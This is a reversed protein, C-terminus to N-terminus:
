KRSEELEAAGYWFDSFQEPAAESFALACRVLAAQMKDYARMLKEADPQSLTVDFRDDVTCVQVHGDDRQYSITYPWREDVYKERM